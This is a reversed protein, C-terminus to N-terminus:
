NKTTSELPAMLNTPVTKPWDGNLVATRIKADRDKPCMVGFRTFNDAPLEVIMEDNLSLSLKDGDRKMVISNWDKDKPVNDTALTERKDLAKSDLYLETLGKSVGLWRPKTGKESLELSIRGVIPFLETKGSEWWFSLTVSEGDFLPRLYQVTLERSSRNSEPDRTVVLQDEFVYWKSSLKGDKIDEQQAARNKKAKENNGKGFPIMADVLPRGRLVDAWGRMAPAILNVESPITAEGAFILEDLQMTHVASHSLTLFPFSGESPITVFRKGNCYATVSNGRFSFARVNKGSRKLSKANFNKSGRFGIAATTATKNNVNTRFLMGGYGVSAEKLQGVDISSSFDFKGVIPFRSILLSTGFSGTGSISGEKNIAYLPGLRRQGPSNNFPFATLDFSQLPSADTAGAAIGINGKALLRSVGSVFLSQGRAHAHPILLQLVPAALNSEIRKEMACTAILTALEPIPTKKLRKYGQIESMSQELAELAPGAIESDEESDNELAFLRVLVAALAADDWPTESKSELRKAVQDVKNLRNAVDSLLLLSSTMPFDASCTTLSEIEPFRPVQNRVIPPPVDYLVLGSFFGVPDDTKNGFTIQELLEFQQQDSLTKIEVLVRAASTSDYKRTAAPQMAMAERILPGLKSVDFDKLLENLLSAHARQVYVDQSGGYGSYLQRVGESYIEYHEQFKKGQNGIMSCLLVEKDIIGALQRHRRGTYSDSRILKATRQLLEIAIERSESYGSEEPTASSTAKESELIPWIAHLMKNVMGSKERSESQMTSTIRNPSEASDSASDVPPLDADVTKTLQQLANLMATPDKAAMAVNIIAGDVSAKDSAKKRRNALAEILSNSTGSRAAYKALVALASKTKIKYDSDFQDYSPGAIPQAYALIETRKKPLVISQLSSTIADSDSESIADGNITKGVSRM